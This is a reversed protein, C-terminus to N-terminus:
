HIVLTSMGIESRVERRVIEEARMKTDPNDIHAVEMGPIIWNREYKNYEVM